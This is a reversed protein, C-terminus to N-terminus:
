AYAREGHESIDLGVEEEDPSVSLGMVADLAKAIGFTLVFAFAAVAIVGVLQILFQSPNGYFLGDAGAPNVLKTAFLGTLLAGTTGGIGHCAWVDLSEDLSRRQRFRIAYYSIPASVAGVVLASLPTIFGAAPTIAVLGVVVGTAFGLVSPKNDLWALLIWVLGATAAATNTNVLATVALGNAALASGGNFGFWGVWLLGAGLVTFPINHPEISSVGFWRRPRIVMAFALASFGATIHVVTGGAFDLAGLGRLWGLVLQGDGPDTASWVWHAAPDYVLTAWLLSFLLFTKFRVREVFAGTILAPTIVAFMMQYAAFALHPITAAYAVNPSEGVGMLGAYNLGGILGGISSGFALTYGYLVWQVSILGMIIFSLNLTSLINKKRVMGGYFFGLAPTMMLVLATAVLVWATDGANITSEM